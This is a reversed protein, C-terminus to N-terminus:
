RLGRARKIRDYASQIDQSRRTATKLMQEPLGQAALKDPHHERMLKRYVKKLEDDAVSAKVGLSQYADDLASQENQRQYQQRQRQQEHSSYHTGSSHQQRQSSQQFRASAGAMLLWKDLQFKNFGLARSARLLVDYESRELKRDNLAAHVLQEMFLQLLDHRGQSDQRFRKLTAELPFAPDKGERFAQQAERRTEGKLELSQMLQQAQEIDTETVRGKSKALHGMTAFMAFFFTAKSTDLDPDKFLSSFGGQRLQQAYSTDFWYGIVFGLIAGPIRAVMFGLVTGIIKGWM